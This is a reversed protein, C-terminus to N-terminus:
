PHQARHRGKINFPKGDVGIFKDDLMSVPQETQTTRKEDGDVGPSIGANNGTGISTLVCEVGNLAARTPAFIQV